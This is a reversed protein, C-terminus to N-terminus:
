SARGSDGDGDNWEEGPSWADFTKIVLLPLLFVWVFLGVAMVALVTVDFM